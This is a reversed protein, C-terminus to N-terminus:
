GPPSGGLWEKRHARRLQILEPIAKKFQGHARFGIITKRFPTACLKCEVCTMGHTQAPCVVIRRGGPTVNGEDPADHPLVVAVPGAKTFYLESKRSSAEYFGDAEELTDASLNITFGALNAQRIADFNRPSTKHTFTFGRKGRNAYVLDALM